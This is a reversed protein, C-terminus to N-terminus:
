VQTQEGLVATRALHLFGELTLVQHPEWEPNWFCLMGRKGEADFVKGHM